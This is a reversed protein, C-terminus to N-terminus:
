RGLRRGGRCKGRKNVVSTSLRDGSDNLRESIRHKWVVKSGTHVVSWVVGARKVVGVAVLEHRGRDCITAHKAVNVALEGNAEDAVAMRGLPKGCDVRNSSFAAPSKDRMRLTPARKEINDGPVSASVGHEIVASRPSVGDDIREFALLHLHDDDRM